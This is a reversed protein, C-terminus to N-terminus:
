VRIGRFSQRLEGLENRRFTFPFQPNALALFAILGAGALVLSQREPSKWAVAVTLVQSAKSEWMLWVHWLAHVGKPGCFYIRRHRPLCPVTMFPGNLGPSGRLPPKLYTEGPIHQHNRCDDPCIRPSCSQLGWLVVSCIKWAVRKYPLFTPLRIKHSM